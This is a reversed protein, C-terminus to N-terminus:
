RSQLVKIMLAIVSFVLLLTLLACGAAMGYVIPFTPIHLTMSVDGATKLRGAHAVSEWTIIGFLCASASETVIAVIDRTKQSFKQILFDVAIHGKQLSTQALSFSVFLAGLMGVLEYAGPIPVRFTRFLIDACTLLMMAMISLAGIMNFASCMSAMWKELRLIL